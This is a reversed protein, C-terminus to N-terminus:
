PSGPADSRLDPIRPFNDTIMRALASAERELHIGLAKTLLRTGLGIALSEQYSRGAEIREITVWPAEADRPDSLRGLVTAADGARGAMAQESRVGLGREWLVTGTATSVLRFLARVKRVNYVGLTTENFDLLIGFLLADVNLAEGLRQAAIGDLQGGLTVGFEDRLVQDSTGTNRVRFGRATLARAMKEQVVAPGDVDNTDNRLPLVALALRESVDKEAPQPMSVCGSLGLIVAAMVLM